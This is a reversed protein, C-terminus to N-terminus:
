KVRASEYNKGQGLLMKALNFEFPVFDTEGKTRNFNVFNDKRGSEKRLYRNSGDIWEHSQQVNPLSVLL